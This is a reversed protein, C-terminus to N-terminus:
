LRAGVSIMSADEYDIRAAYRSITSTNPEIASSTASTCCRQGNGGFDSRIGGPLDGEGRCRGLPVRASGGRRGCQGAVDVDLLEDPSKM